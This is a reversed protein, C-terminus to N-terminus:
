KASKSDADRQTLPIGRMELPDIKVQGVQDQSGPEQRPQLNTKVKKDAM